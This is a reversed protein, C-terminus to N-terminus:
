LSSWHCNYINPGILGTHTSQSILFAPNKSHSLEKWQLLSSYHGPFITSSAKVEIPFLEGGIDIILDIEIASIARWYYQCEPFGM